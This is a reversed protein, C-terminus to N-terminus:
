RASIEIHRLESNGYDHYTVSNVIYVSDLNKELEKVSGFDQDVRGKVVISGRSIAFQSETDVLKKSRVFDKDARKLSDKSIYIKVDDNSDMGLSTVSKITAEKEIFLASPVLTKFLIENRTRKDIIKNYITLETNGVM